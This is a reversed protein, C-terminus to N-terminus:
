EFVCRMQENLFGAVTAEQRAGRFLTDQCVFLRLPAAEAYSRGDGLRNPNETKTFDWAYPRVLPQVLGGSRLAALLVPNRRAEPRYYQQGFNEIYKKVMEEWTYLTGEGDLIALALSDGLQATWLSATNFDVSQVEAFVSLAASFEVLVEFQLTSWLDPNIPKAEHMHMLLSIMQCARDCGLRLLAKRIKEFNSSLRQTQEQDHGQWRRLADIDPTDVPLADCLTCPLSDCELFKGASCIRGPLCACWSESDDRILHSRPNELPFRPNGPDRQNHAPPVLTAVHIAHARRRFVASAIGDTDSLAYGKPGIDSKQIMWRGAKYHFGSRGYKSPTTADGAKNVVLIATMDNKLLRNQHKLLIGANQRMAPHDSDRQYQPVFVFDLSAASPKTKEVLQNCLVTNIHEEGQAAIHDFCIQCLFTVNPGVFYLVRRGQAMNRPHEWQSPRLKAQFHWSLTEAALKVAIVCVNVFAGGTFSISTDPIASPFRSSLEHAEQPSLSELGGIFIVDEQLNEMQQRICDLGDSDRMPISGEPFLVFPIHVNREQSETVRVQFAKEILEKQSQKYTASIRFPVSGDPVLEYEPQVIVMGLKQGADIALGNLEVRQVDFNWSNPM